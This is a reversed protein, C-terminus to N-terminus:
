LSSEPVWTSAWIFGRSLLWHFPGLHWLPDGLPAPANGGTVSCAKQTRSWTHPHGWGFVASLLRGLGTLLWSQQSAPGRPGGDTPRQRAPGQSGHTCRASVTIVDLISLLSHVSDGALVEKVAVESGDQVHPLASRGSPARGAPCRGGGGASPRAAGQLRASWLSASPASSPCRSFLSARRGTRGEDLGLAM